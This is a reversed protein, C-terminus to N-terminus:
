QGTDTCAAVPLRPVETRAGEHTAKAPALARCIEIVEALNKLCVLGLRELRCGDGLRRVTVPGGATFTWYIM